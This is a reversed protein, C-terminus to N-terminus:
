SNLEGIVPRLETISSGAFTIMRMKYVVSPMYKAGITAWINNLREASINEIEFVLKEISSDLSPTNQVTFVNRQQFFAIAFSLFRLAEGYNNSSFYAAFLVLLNLNVSTTAPSSVKQMHVPTVSTRGYTEKEINLLTLVLKNEGSIAVSGDQNVIGSIIVKEENVKFQARLHENMERVVCSLSEYIMFEFLNFLYGTGGAPFARWYLLV